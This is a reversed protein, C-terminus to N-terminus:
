QILSRGTTVLGHPGKNIINQTIHPVGPLSCFTSPHISFCAALIYGRRCPSTTTMYSALSMHSANSNLQKISRHLIAFHSKLPKIKTQLFLAKISTKCRSSYTHYVHSM